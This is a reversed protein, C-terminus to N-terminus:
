EIAGNSFISRCNITSTSGETVDAPLNKGRHFSATALRTHRKAFLGKHKVIILMVDFNRSMFYLLYASLKVPTDKCSIVRNSHSLFSCM